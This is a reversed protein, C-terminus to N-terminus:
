YETNFAEPDRGWFGELALITPVQQPKHALM